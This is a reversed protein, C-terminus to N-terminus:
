FRIIWLRHDSKGPRATSVHCSNRFRIPYATSSLHWPTYEAHRFLASVGITRLEKNKVGARDSVHPTWGLPGLCMFLGVRTLSRGPRNSLCCALSYMLTRSALMKMSGNSSNQGYLFCLVSASVALSDHPFSPLATLRVVHIPLRIHTFLVTCSSPPLPAFAATAFCLASPYLITSSIM